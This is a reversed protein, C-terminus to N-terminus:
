HVQRNRKAMPHLKKDLEKKEAENMKGSNRDKLAMVKTELRM